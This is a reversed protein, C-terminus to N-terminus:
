QRSSNNDRPFGHSALHLDRELAYKAPANQGWRMGSESNAFARTVIIWFASGNKIRFNADHLSTHSPTSATVRHKMRESQTTARFCFGPHQSEGRCARDDHLRPNGNEDLDLYIDEAVERTEVVLKSTFEILATDTDEFFNIKM